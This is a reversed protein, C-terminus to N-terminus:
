MLQSRAMKVGRVVWVVGYYIAFFSVPVVFGFQWRQPISGFNVYAMTVMTLTLAGSVIMLVALVPGSTEGNADAAPQVDGISESMFGGGPLDDTVGTRMKELPLGESDQSFSRQWLPHVLRPLERIKTM